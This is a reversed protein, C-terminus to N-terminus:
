QKIIIVITRELYVSKRGIHSLTAEDTKDRFDRTCCTLYSAENELGSNKKDHPKM